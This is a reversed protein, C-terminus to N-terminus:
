TYGATAAPAVPAMTAQSELESIVPMSLASRAVVTQGRRARQVHRLRRLQTALATRTGSQRARAAELKLITRRRGTRRGQCKM